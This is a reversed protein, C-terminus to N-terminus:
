PAAAARLHEAHEAYHDPGDYRIVAEVTDGNGLRLDLMEDDLNAMARRFRGYAADERARAEVVSTGHGAAATAANMADTQSSDYDFADGRGAAALEVANSGHESWFAAHIVLDRGDWREVIARGEPEPLGELAAVFGAREHDLEELLRSVRPGASL